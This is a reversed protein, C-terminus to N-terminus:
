TSEPWKELGQRMFQIIREGAGPRAHAGSQQHLNDSQEVSGATGVYLQGRSSFVM